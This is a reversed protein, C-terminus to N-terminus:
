DRTDDPLGAARRLMSETLPTADTNTQLWLPHLAAFVRMENTLDFLLTLRYTDVADTVPTESQPEDPTAM